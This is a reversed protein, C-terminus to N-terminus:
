GWARETGEPSWGTGGLGKLGEGGWSGWDVLLIRPSRLRPESQGGLFTAETRSTVLPRM